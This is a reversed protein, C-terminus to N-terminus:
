SKYFRLLFLLTLLVILVSGAILWNMRIGPSFQLPETNGILIMDAWYYPLINARKDQLIYFLKAKRLAEDKNMGAAIYENLKESIIYIAQEDAVWQTAAVSPIGAASLGRALSFIGEGNRNRGANTQCASLVIFKAAPKILMQLESLHIASDSMFLLPEEDSSDARAHTLITATNYYGAQQLFNRRSADGHTLLKSHRYSKSCNRLADESRKLDALGGYATFSVPAIGIFDGIGSTKEYQNLLYRASYVYSFSYTNILFDAKSSDRSLAEFPILFNDQCIIVRGGRLRFPRVLIDYLGYANRLFASFTNNSANGDSCFQIFRALAGGVAQDIKIFQCSDPGVCLAFNLTDGIFYDIFVQGNKALFDQLSALPKVNDAYKYQYYRPYATELSKIQRELKARAEFLQLQLDKRQASTDPLGGLRQQLEIIDIQLKERRATEERPLFAAAGLEDLKDQLLVSRSKEMFFFALEPDGALYCAELANLFFGRSQNRWYLKTQEGMQEHRMMRMVSDNLLATKLCASLYKKDNRQKYLGLLLDIRSNFLNQILEKNGIPDLEELSPNHLVDTGRSIKLFNMVQLHCRLASDLKAEYIYNNGLNLFARATRISDSRKKAYDIATRFCSLARQYSRLSDGYFIGLDNFDDSVQGFDKLRIREAICSRFAAEAIAFRRQKSFIFAETKLASALEFHERLRRAMPIAMTADNLASSLKGQFFLGQARQNLFSLYYLSDSKKLCDAIGRDSEEVAKEYDGMRFYIYARDYRSDRIVNDQDNTRDAFVIASDYYLLAKKFLNMQNYYVAVNYMDTVAFAASSGRKAATNISLAKLTLDIAANYNRRVRYELAGIKHLLRAYVSDQPLQQKESRSKLDYFLQLKEGPRLSNNTDVSIIRALFVENSLKQARCPLLFLLIAALVLLCVPKKM